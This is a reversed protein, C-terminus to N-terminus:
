MRKILKMEEEKKECSLSEINNPNTLYKEM